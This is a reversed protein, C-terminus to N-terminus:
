IEGQLIELTKSAGIRNAGAKLMLIADERSRIGGAAKVGYKPGVVSRMLAVDEVAAGGSNFGTSTKVFDTGAQKSLLCAMVKEEDSLLCNEHIVKLVAEYRHVLDAISAIEESIETFKRDKLWNVKIVMDIEAAGEEIAKQTEELIVDTKSAALPFGVVSCVTIDNLLKKAQKVYIPNVCVAKVQYKEAEACLADVQKQTTDSKLITHDIYQALHEFDSAIQDEGNARCVRCQLCIEHSGGCNCPKGKLHPFLQVAIERISNM